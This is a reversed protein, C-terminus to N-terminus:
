HSGATCCSGERLLTVGNVVLPRSLRLSVEDGPRATASDLPQLTSLKLVTGKRVVVEQAPAEQALTNATVVLRSSIVALVRKFMERRRRNCGAYSSTRVPELPLRRCFAIDCITAPHQSASPRGIMLDGSKGADGM